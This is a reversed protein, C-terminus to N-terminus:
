NQDDLKRKLISIEKELEFIRISIDDPLGERQKYLKMLQDRIIPEGVMQIEKLISQRFLKNNELDNFLQNIKKKAFNGIPLGDIFFSNRYLTHINAGFTNDRSISKVVKCTGNKNKDLFIINDKPFDSVLIPSHSAIIIQFKFEPYLQEVANLLLNLFKQQWEPHFSLEPEDLILIQHTDQHKIQSRAYNLNALFILYAEEGSSLPYGWKVKFCQEFFLDRRAVENRSYRELLDNNYLFLLQSYVTVIEKADTLSIISNLANSKPKGEISQFIADLSLFLKNIEIGNKLNSKSIKEFFLITCSRYHLSKNSESFAIIEQELGM